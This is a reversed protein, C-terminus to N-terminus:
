GNYREKWLQSEVLAQEANRQKDREWKRILGEKEQQSKQNWNKDYLSPNEIKKEHIVVQKYHSGISKELRAKNKKIADKYIGGHVQGAKAKEYVDNSDKNTYLNKKNLNSAIENISKKSTEEKIQLNIREKKHKEENWQNNVAKRGKETNHNITCNCFRHRSFVNHDPEQLVWQKVYEYDFVGSVEECWECCGGNTSRSITEKFGSESLFDANAKITDDVSQNCYNKVNEDLLWEADDYDNYECLKNVLNDTKKENFEAKVGKVNIGQKKNILGQVDAGYSSIIEHAEKLKPKVARDAINYYMKGNPLTEKTINNKFANKLTNGVENSVDYVDNFNAKGALLKKSKDAIIKNDAIADNFDKKLNESLQPVIDKKEDM